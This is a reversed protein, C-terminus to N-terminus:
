ARKRRLDEGQVSVWRVTKMRSLLRENPYRGAFEKKTLNTAIVTPTQVASVRANIVELLTPLMRAEDIETGIDDLALLLPTERIQEQKALQEGFNAAFIRSSTTQAWIAFTKSRRWRESRL